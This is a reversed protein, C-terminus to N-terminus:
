PKWVMMVVIFVLLLSVVGSLAAIRPYAASRTTLEAGGAAVAASTSEDARRLAPIVFVHNLGAAIMYAIISYLIWPTFISLDHDSMAMAGFGFVVVVLSLWTFLNASKLLSGLSGTQGTRISRLAVMPLGVMPGIIFVAGVVHIVSILTDM